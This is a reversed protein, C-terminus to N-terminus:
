TAPLNMQNAWRGADRQMVKDVSGHGLSDQFFPSINSPSCFTWAKASPNPLAVELQHTEARNDVMSCKRSLHSPHLGLSPRSTTSKRTGMTDNPVTNAGRSRNGKCPSPLRKSSRIEAINSLFGLDPWENACNAASSHADNPSTGQQCEMGHLPVRGAAPAHSPRAAFDLGLPLLRWLCCMDLLKLTLM